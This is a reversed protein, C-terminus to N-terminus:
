RMELLSMQTAYDDNASVPEIVGSANLIHLGIVPDVCNRLIKLKDPISYPSLDFGLRQEHSKVTGYQIGSPKTSTAPIRFNTWFLHRGIKQAPIFPKYYPIVNEVVWKCGAHHQLFIIEQWLTMDPYVPSFKKTKVGLGYRVKSHTPCPPSTWIFDYEDYHHLLYDHADDVIVTDSPWLDAYIAAINENLEVATVQVTKPWLKRNGGIGAYLNLIKPKDMM